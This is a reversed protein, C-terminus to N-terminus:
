WSLLQLLRLHVQRGTPLPPLSLEPWEQGAAQVPPLPRGGVAVAPEPQPRPGRPCRGASAGPSEACRGPASGTRCREEGGGAPGSGASPSPTGPSCSGGTVPVQQSRRVLRLLATYDWGPRLAANHYGQGHTGDGLVFDVPTSLNLVAAVYPSPLQSANFPQPDGSCAGEVATGNRTAVVVLQHERRPLATLPGPSVPRPRRSRSPPPQPPSVRRPAARLGREGPRRLPVPSPTSPLCPRGKPRPSTGCAAAAPTSLARPTQRPLGPPSADPAARRPGHPSRPRGCAAGAAPCLEETSLSRPAPRSGAPGPGSLQRLRPARRPRAARPPPVPARRAKGSGDTQFEWLSAAGAGAATLGRVAVVYSSGPSHEPLPHETVSGSLRLREMELFSGDQASRATVNLQPRPVSSSPPLERRGEPFRGAARRSPAFGGQSGVRGQARERQPLSGPPM